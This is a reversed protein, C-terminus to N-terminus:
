IYNKIFGFEIYQQITVFSKELKKNINMIYTMYKLLYNFLM